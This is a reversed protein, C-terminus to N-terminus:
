TTTVAVGVTAGTAKLAEWPSTLEVQEVGDTALLAVTRSSLDPTTM